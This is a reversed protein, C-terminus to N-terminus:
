HPPLVQVLVKCVGGLAALEKGPVEMVGCRCGLAALEIGPECATREAHEADTVQHVSSGGLCLMRGVHVGLGLGGSVVGNWSDPWVMSWVAVRPAARPLTHNMSHMM